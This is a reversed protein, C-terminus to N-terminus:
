FDSFNSLKMLSALCGKLCKNGSSSSILDFQKPFKLLGMELWNRFGLFMQIWYWRM